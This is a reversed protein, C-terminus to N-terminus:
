VYYIWDEARWPSRGKGSTNVQAVPEKWEPGGEPDLMQMLKGLGAAMEAGSPGSSSAKENPTPIKELEKAQWKQLPTNKDGFDLRAGPGEGKYWPVLNGQQDTKLGQDILDIQAETSQPYAKQWEPNISGDPLTMLPGKKSGGESILKNPDLGSNKTEQKPLETTTETTIPAPSGERPAIVNGYRDTWTSNAGVWRTRGPEPITPVSSPEGFGVGLDRKSGDENFRSGTGELVTEATKVAKNESARKNVEAISSGDGLQKTANNVTKEAVQSSTSPIGWFQDHYKRTNKKPQVLGGEALEKKRVDKIDPMTLYNMGVGIPNMLFDEWTLPRRGRWARM